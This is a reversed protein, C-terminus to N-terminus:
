PLIALEQHTRTVLQSFAAKTNIPEVMTDIMTALTILMPIARSSLLPVVGRSFSSALTLAGCPVQPFLKTTLMSAETPEHLSGVVVSGTKKEIVVIDDNCGHEISAPQGFPLATSFADNMGLQRPREVRPAMPQKPLAKGIGGGSVWPPVDELAALRAGGLCAGM